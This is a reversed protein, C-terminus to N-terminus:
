RGVESEICQKLRIRRTSFGGSVRDLRKNFYDCWDGCGLCCTPHCFEGTEDTVVTVKIERKKM